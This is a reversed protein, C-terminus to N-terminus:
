SNTTIGDILSTLQERIALLISNSDLNELYYEAISRPPVELIEVLTKLQPVPLSEKSVKIDFPLPGFKGLVKRVVEHEINVGKPTPNKRPAIAEVDEPLILDEPPNEFGDGELLSQVEPPLAEPNRSKTSSPQNSKKISDSISRANKESDCKVYEQFQNYDLREGDTTVVMYQDGEFYSDRVNVYKGTRRNVWFGDAIPSAGPFQIGNNSVDRIPM